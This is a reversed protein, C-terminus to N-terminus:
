TDVEMDGAAGFSLFGGEDEDQADEELEADAVVAAGKTGAVAAGMVGAGRKPGAVAAAEPLYFEKPVELSELLRAKGAEDGSGGGIALGRFRHTHTHTHEPYCGSPPTPRKLTEEFAKSGHM